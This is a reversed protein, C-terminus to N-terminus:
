QDNVIDRITDELTYKPQWGFEEVLRTIDAQIAVLPEEKDSTEIINPKSPLKSASFILNMLEGNSTSTSSGINYVFHKPKHEILINIVEAIDKVSVYDRRSDLRNIEIAKTKSDNFEKIQGMLRPVLFRKAMGPGIPNFIRVVTVPLNQEKSYKLAIQEEQLKALGYGSSANLPTTEKVPINKAEVLGYEGASGSIIIRKISCGSDVVSQLLNKTFTVNLSTDLSTDIIGACNIIADPKVQKLAQKITSPQLLDVYVSNPQSSKKERTARYVNHRVALIDAVNKGIFGNAGLVLVKM